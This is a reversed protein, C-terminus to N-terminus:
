RASASFCFTSMSMSRSSSVTFYRIGIEDLLRLGGASGRFADCIADIKERTLEGGGGGGRAAM